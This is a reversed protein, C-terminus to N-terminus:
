RLGIKKNIEVPKFVRYGNKYLFYILWGEKSGENVKGRRNYGDRLTAQKENKDKLTWKDQENNVPIKQRWIISTWAKHKLDTYGVEVVSEQWKGGIRHQKVTWLSIQM